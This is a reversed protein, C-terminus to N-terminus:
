DKSGYMRVPEIKLVKGSIHQLNWSCRTGDVQTHNTLYLSLLTYPIKRGKNRQLIHRQGDNRHVDNFITDLGRSIQHLHVELTGQPKYSQFCSHQQQFTYLCRTINM